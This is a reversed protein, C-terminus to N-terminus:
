LLFLQVPLPLCGKNFLSSSQSFFFLFACITCVSGVHILFLINNQTRCWVISASACLMGGQFYFPSLSELSNDPPQSAYGQVDGFTNSLYNHPNHEIKTQNKSRTQYCTLKNERTSLYTSLYIWPQPTPEKHPQRLRHRNKRTYSLTYPKAHRLLSPM